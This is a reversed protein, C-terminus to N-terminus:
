DAKTKDPAYGMVDNTIGAVLTIPAPKAAVVKNKLDQFTEFGSATITIPVFRVAQVETPESLNQKYETKAL